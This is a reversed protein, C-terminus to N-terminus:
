RRIPSGFRVINGDPDVLVGEHQGWETDEPTRVDAGAVRWAHALRDADDVFLYATSPTVVKDEPVVLGLHIEVDDLTAFGYEGSGYLRTAFGLRGYYELASRVDRVPFTPAVRRAHTEAAVEHIRLTPEAGLRRLLAPAAPPDPAARMADLAAQDRWLSHIRWEGDPGRLLETRLLGDPLPQRLLQEFAPLVADANAEPVVGSVETLIRTAM